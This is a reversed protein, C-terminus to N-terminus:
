GIHPHLIQFGLHFIIDRFLKRVTAMFCLAHKRSIRSVVEEMFFIGGLRSNFLGQPIKKRVYKKRM